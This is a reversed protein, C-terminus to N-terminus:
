VYKLPFIFLDSSKLGSRGTYFLIEGDRIVKIKYEQLTDIHEKVSTSTTNITDHITTIVQQLYEKEQKETQNFIM